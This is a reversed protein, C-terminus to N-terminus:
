AENGNCIWCIIYYGSHNLHSVLYTNLKKSVNVMDIYLYSLLSKILRCLPIKEIYPKAGSNM